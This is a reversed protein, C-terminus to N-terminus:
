SLLPFILLYLFFIFFHFSFILFYFLIPTKKWREENLLKNFDNAHALIMNGYVYYAQYTMKELGAALAVFCLSFCIPQQTFVVEFYPFFTYM